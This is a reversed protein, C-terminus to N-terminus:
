PAPTEAAVLDLLGPLRRDLDDRRLTAARSNGRDIQRILGSERLIRFHHTLTAKSVPLGFSACTRETGIPARALEMVVRRRLPDALASLVAGLTIEHEAPHGEHDM